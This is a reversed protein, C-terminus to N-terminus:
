VVYEKGCDMARTSKGKAPGLVFSELHKSLAVRSLVNFESCDRTRAALIVEDLATRAM